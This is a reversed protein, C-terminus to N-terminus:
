VEPTRETQRAYVRGNTGSAPRREKSWGGAAVFLGATVACTAGIALACVGAIFSARGGIVLNTVGVVVFVGALLVDLVILARRSVVLESGAGRAQFRLPYEADAGELVQM